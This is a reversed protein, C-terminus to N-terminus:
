GVYEQKILPFVNNNNTNIYWEYKEQGSESKSNLVQYVIALKDNSIDCTCM